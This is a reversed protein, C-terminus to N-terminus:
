RIVLRSNPGAQGGAHAVTEGAYPRVGPSERGLYTAFVEGFEPDTM